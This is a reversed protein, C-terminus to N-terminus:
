ANARREKLAQRFLLFAWAVVACTLVMDAFNFIAFRMFVPEIFDVVYGFRFRDILNGIGGACIFALCVSQSYPRKLDAFMYIVCGLLVVGIIIALVQPHERLMSFAAGTNRVYQFRFGFFSATPEQLSLHRLVLTKILQDIFVAVATLCPLLVLRKKSISINM